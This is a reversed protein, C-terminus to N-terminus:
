PTALAQAIAEPTYLREVEIRCFVCLAAVIPRPSHKWQEALKYAEKILLIDDERLISIKNDM